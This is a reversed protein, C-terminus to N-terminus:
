LLTEVDYVSPIVKPLVAFGQPLARFDDSLVVKGGTDEANLSNVALVPVAGTPKIRRKFEEIDERYILHMRSPPSIIVYKAELMRTLEVGYKLLFRGTAEPMFCFLKPKAFGFTVRSRFMVDPSDHELRIMWLGNVPLCDGVRYINFTEHVLFKKRFNYIFSSVVDSAVGTKAKNKLVAVTESAVHITIDPYRLLLERPAVIEDRHEHSMLAETKQLTPVGNCNFLYSGLDRSLCDLNVPLNEM